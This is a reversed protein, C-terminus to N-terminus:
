NTNIKKEVKDIKSLYDNAQQKYEKPTETDDLTWFLIKKLFKILFMRL